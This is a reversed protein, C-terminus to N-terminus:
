AKTPLTLHTYSVPLYGTFVLLIGILTPWPLTSVTLGRSSKNSRSAKAELDESFRQLQTFLVLIVLFVSIIVPTLTSVGGHDIVTWIVMVALGLM